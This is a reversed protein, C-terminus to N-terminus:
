LDVWDEAAHEKLFKFFGDKTREGQYEVPADKSNAPYFKLTPFGQIQVGPIENETADVKVLLIKDNGELAKATEEYIPALSKCHGCWPAYFEVLVHRGPTLVVDNFSKGVVVKVAEDNKEPIEASKFHRELKENEFHDVFRLLAEKTIKEKLPFKSLDGAKPAVIWAVPADAVKVGVYDSLRQGLGSTVTSHSWVIKGKQERAADQFAKYEESNSDDTFLVVAAAEKGFVREIAEDGEFPMVVPYRHTNIFSKISDVSYDGEYTNFGEDFQKYLVVDAGAAERLTSEHSHAFTLADNAQAVKVFNKFHDNDAGFYAVVVKNDSKLKDLAAADTITTTAPGTKKKIWNVIEATTRGGNFDIAEGKVFFKITPYGQVQYKNALEQHESADVKALPIAPDASKLIKAAAAYEPALKKCHGCWPAYFEVLLYEFQKVAEDFNHHKLVIVDEEEPYGHTTNAFAASALMVCLIFATIKM